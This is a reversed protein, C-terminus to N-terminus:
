GNSNSGWTYIKYREGIAMVHYLGCTVNYINFKVNVMKPLNVIKGYKPDKGCQGYFNDGFLYLNHQTDLAASFTNGCTIYQIISAVGDDNKFYIPYPIFEKRLNGTRRYLNFM